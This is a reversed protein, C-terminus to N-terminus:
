VGGNCALKTHIENVRQLVDFIRVFWTHEMFVRRRGAAGMKARLEPDRLLQQVREVLEERSSFMFLETGAEFDKDLDPIRQCVLPTGSALAILHRDSYYGAADNFHNVSIGVKARKWIHVQQKVGCSGLVPFHNKDWGSGVVGINVGASMLANVAAVRDPTGPFMDGYYNGIFVVDPVTFTPVWEPEQLIDEEWDLGIQLYRVEPAGAAYYMPIHKISSLFTIHTAACISALYEGVSPRADGMWHSVVCHPLAQRVKQITSARIIETNQLQLWLWDPKFRLVQDLFEDNVLGINGTQKVRDYYDYEAVNERGFVGQFAHTMGKQPHDYNICSLFIRRINM